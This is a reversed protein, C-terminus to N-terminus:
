RVCARVRTSVIPESIRALGDPELCIQSVNLDGCHFLPELFVLFLGLPSVSTLLAQFYLITLTTLTSDVHTREIISLVGTSISQVGICRIPQEWGCIGLAREVQLYDFLM